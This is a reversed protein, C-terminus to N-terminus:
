ATASSARWQMLWASCRRRVRSRQRWLGASAQLVPGFCVSCMRFFCMSCPVADAVRQVPAERSQAAAVLRGIGAPCPLFLRFVNLSLCMSCPVADAVRHLPAERSQAAAVLRGIGAPAPRLCVCCMLCLLCVRLVRICPLSSASPSPSCALADCPPHPLAFPGVARM